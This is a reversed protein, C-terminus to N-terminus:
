PLYPKQRQIHMMGMQMRLAQQGLTVRSESNIRLKRQAKVALTHKDIGILRLMGDDGAINKIEARRLRM